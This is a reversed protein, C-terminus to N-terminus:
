QRGVAHRLEAEAVKVQYVATGEGAEAEALAAEAQTLGVITGLRESYRARALRAATRAYEAQFKHVPLSELANEFRFWATRTELAVQQRLDDLRADLLRLRAEAQEIQGELNGGTFLPFALGAGGALLQRALVSTFRAYGGSFVLSLFPKRQSRALSVEEGASEREAGLARLEPRRESAEQILKPLPDPQAASLEPPQLEYDADQSAGLARGLEAVAARVNHDAEVLALQAQSLGVRALELDLRSRIQGEYFAQAQRVALERSRVTEAAVDRLRRAQLLVYFAREVGLIVSAETANLDAKPPRWAASSPASPM